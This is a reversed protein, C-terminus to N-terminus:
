SGIGQDIRLKNFNSSKKRTSTSDGGIKFDMANLEPPPPPAAPTAASIKMSPQSLCM